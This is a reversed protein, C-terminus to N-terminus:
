LSTRSYELPITLNATFMIPDNQKIYPKYIGKELDLQVDLFNVVKLNAEITISLDYSKFVECITKKINETDRPNLNSIALGDDRYLGGIIPLHKLKSLLYLGCFDCSEAGDFSGMTIDFTSNRQKVWTENKFHLLSMKFILKM